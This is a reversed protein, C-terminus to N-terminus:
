EKISDIMEFLDRLQKIYAEKVVSGHTPIPIITNLPPYAIHMSHRVGTKVLCGYAKALKIVEDITLDNRVPKEFFKRKLKEIQSM